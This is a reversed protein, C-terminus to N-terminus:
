VPHRPLPSKLHALSPYSDDDHSGGPAVEVVEVDIEAVVRGVLHDGEGGGLYGVDLPPSVGGFQGPFQVGVPNGDVRLRFQRRQDALPFHILHHEGVGVHGVLVHHVAARQHHRGPGIETQHAAPRRHQLAALRDDGDAGHAGATALALGGAVHAVQELLHPLLHDDDAMRHGVAVQRGLPHLPEGGVGVEVAVLTGDFFPLLVLRVEVPPQHNVSAHVVLLNEPLRLRLRVDDQPVAPVVIQRKELGVQVDDHGVREPGPVFQAVM